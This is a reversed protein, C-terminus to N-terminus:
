ILPDSSLVFEDAVVTDVVPAGSHTSRWDRGIWIIAGLIAVIVLIVLGWELSSPLGRRPPAENRRPTPRGKGGKKVSAAQATDSRSKSAM